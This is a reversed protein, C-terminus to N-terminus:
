SGILSAVIDESLLIETFILFHQPITSQEQTKTSRLLPSERLNMLLSVKFFSKNHQNILLRKSTIRVKRSKGKLRKRLSKESPTTAIFEESISFL